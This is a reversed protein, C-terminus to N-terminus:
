PTGLLNIGTLEELEAASLITERRTELLTEVADLYQKQLEIYTTTPVAGLRFHRDALEAADAFAKISEPQWQASEHKKTEFTVLASAIRRTIERQTTDLLAQAQMQRARAVEVNASTNKWLPLPFSIGIGVIRDQVGATEETLHPGVSFAPWRENRTLRVRFGQQELEATRLRLEFNNTQAIEMLAALSPADGLNSEALSTELPRDIARGTLQNLALRANGTALEADAAKRRLTLETAELVRLELQPAIGAPDRQIMVERLAHFRDAVERAVHARENAAALAHAKGRVSSALAAQFRALGLEALTVDQNAIARRLGLRGPWEFTQSVGVSWAVGEGSSVGVPDHSRKQGLTGTIEPRPLLAATKRSARAAQIEAEFFRIETNHGLAEQVLATPSELANTTPSDARASIALLLCIKLFFSKKM